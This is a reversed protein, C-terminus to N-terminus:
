PPRGSVDELESFFFDQAVQQCVGKGPLHELVDVALELLAGLLRWAGLWVDGGTQRGVGVGWACGCVL